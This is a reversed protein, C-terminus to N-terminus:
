KVSGAWSDRICASDFLKVKQQEKNNEECNSDRTPRGYNHSREKMDFDSPGELTSHVAFVKSQTCPVAQMGFEEAM